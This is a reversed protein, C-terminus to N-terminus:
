NDYNTKFARLLSQYIMCEREVYVFEKNTITSSTVQHPTSYRVNKIIYNEDFRYKMTDWLWSDGHFFDLGAPINVWDQRKIFMLTGIDYIQETPKVLTMPGMPSSPSGNSHSQSYVIFRGPKMETQLFDFAALDFDVDDNLICLNDYLSMGVGYNWAPNVLINLKFNHLIVKPHNLVEDDPQAEMDNNIIIIEGVADVEVLKKLFNPFPKHRWMTPIVVSFKDASLTIIEM